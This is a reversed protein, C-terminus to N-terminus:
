AAKRAVQSRQCSARPRSGLRLEGQSDPRERHIRPSPDGQAVQEGSTDIGALRHTGSTWTLCWATSDRTRSCPSPRRARRWAKSTQPLPEMLDVIHQRKSRTMRSSSSTSKLVSRGAQRREAHPDHELRCAGGRRAGEACSRDTPRCVREDFRTATLRPLRNLHPPLPSPAERGMESDVRIDGGLLPSSAVSRCGWAQEATNAAPRGRGPRIVRFIPHQQRLFVIGTDAVSLAIV